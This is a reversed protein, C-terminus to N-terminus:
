GDQTTTWQVTIAVFIILCQLTHERGDDYDTYSYLSGLMLGLVPAISIEAEVYRAYLLVILAVVCIVQVAAIM